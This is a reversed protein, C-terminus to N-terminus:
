RASYIRFISLALRCSMTHGHLSGESAEVPPCAYCAVQLLCCALRRGGLCVATHVGGEQLGGPLSSVGAAAQVGRRM